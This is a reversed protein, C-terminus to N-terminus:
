RRGHRMMQLLQPICPEDQHLSMALPDLTGAHGVKKQRLTRRVRKVVDFSTPGEPKDICLFGDM